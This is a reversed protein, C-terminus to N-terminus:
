NKVFRISDLFRVLDPQRDLNEAEAAIQGATLTYIYNGQMQIKHRAVYALQNIRGVEEFHTITAEGKQLTEKELILRGLDEKSKISGFVFGKYFDERYIDTLDSKVVSLNLFRGDEKAEARLLLGGNVIVEEYTIDAPAHYVNYEGSDPKEVCVQINRFCLQEAFGIGALMMWFAATLCFLGAARQALDANARCRSMIKKPM